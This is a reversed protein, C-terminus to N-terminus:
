LEVVTFGAQEAAAALRLDNCVFTRGYPRHGTWVLAAALQLADAAKLGHREIVFAATSRVEEDPTVERWAARLQELLRIGKAVRVEPMQGTRSLRHIASLIELPVAWWVVATQSRILQRARSGGQGPVCLPVLASADWFATM